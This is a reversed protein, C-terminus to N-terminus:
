ELCFNSSKEPTDNKNQNMDFRTKALDVHLIYDKLEFNDNPEEDKPSEPQFVNNRKIVGFTEYSLGSPETNNFRKYCNTFCRTQAFM